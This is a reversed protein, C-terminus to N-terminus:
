FLGKLYNVLVAGAFVGFVGVVGAFVGPAPLPLKLLTFIGGLVAGTVFSLLAQSM